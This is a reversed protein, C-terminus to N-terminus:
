FVSKKIHIANETKLSLTLTVMSQTTTIKWNAVAEEVERGQGRMDTQNVTPTAFKDQQPELV